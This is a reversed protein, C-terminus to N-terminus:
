KEGSADRRVILDSSLPLFARWGGDDIAIIVRLNGPQRPTDWFAQVEVQYEVGSEAVVARNDSGNLYRALLTEYPQRRLEAVVDDLVRRAEKVNVRWDHWPM